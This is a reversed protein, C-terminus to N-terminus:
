ITKMILYLEILAEQIKELNTGVRGALFSCTPAQIERLPTKGWPEDLARGQVKQNCVREGCQSVMDETEDLSVISRLHRLRDWNRELGHFLGGPLHVM